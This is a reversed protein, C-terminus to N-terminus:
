CQIPRQQLHPLMALPTTALLGADVPLVVGSIWRAEGSALFVVARAIDWATGETGLPGAQRRLDRLQDSVGHSQSAYIHGPAVCNVRINERGHHVAMHRTLAIVGGKSASYAANPWINARMGEISSINVISGGGAKIMAPIAYRSALMAGKLNVAMVEDWATEEVEVVTGRRGIAANNVLIHLAGYETVTAEVMARCDEKKSVDGAFVSAEGGEAEIAALTKLGNEGVRDVLLVQAGQRAFLISTAQGVGDVESLAGAGTVVAVKGKLRTGRKEVM